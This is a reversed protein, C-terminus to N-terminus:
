LDYNSDKKPGSVIEVLFVEPEINLKEFYAKEVNQKFTEFENKKIIAIACGGFGAGTMRAGIAGYKKACEVITDLHVGTVEYDEKLSKHSADLLEGLKEIQNSDLAKVFEKVRNEETVVHKVRRFIVDDNIIKEIKDLDEIKLECLNKIRYKNCLVNFAKTCEDVRENYKSEVLKRPKNTKMVVVRYEGLNLPHYSYEFKACDLLMAMNDLGLSIAAEDMIGCRLGCFENECKQALLAIKKNDLGLNFLDNLIYCILDLLAASSSLGSGVPIQSSVMINLGKNIKFGQNMLIKFMGFVYNGWDNEKKYSISKLSAQKIGKIETSSIVIKDDSRVSVAAYIYKSIAAPLVDGGNYDIHEGILNIRSPAKYLYKPNESFAKVFEEKLFEKM